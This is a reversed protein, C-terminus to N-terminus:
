RGKSIICDNCIYTGDLQLFDKRVREKTRCGTCKADVMAPERKNKSVKKTLPKKAAQARKEGEEDVFFNIGKVQVKTKISKKNMGTNTVGKDEQTSELVRRPLEVEENFLRKYGEAVMKWDQMLIGRKILESSM